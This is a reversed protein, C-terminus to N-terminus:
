NVIEVPMERNIADTQIGQLSVQAMQLYRNKKSEPITDDESLLYHVTKQWLYPQEHLPIPPDVDGTFDTWDINNRELEVILAGLRSFGWQTNFLLSPPSGFTASQILVAHTPVFLASDAETEVVLRQMNDWSVLTIPRAFKLDVFPTQATSDKNLIWISNRVGITGIPLEQTNEQATVDFSQTVFRSDQNIKFRVGIFEPWVVKELMLNIAADDWKPNIAGVAEQLARRIISRMESPKM